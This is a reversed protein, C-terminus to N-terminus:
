WSDGGGEPPWVGFARRLMAVQGIHYSNHVATQWLVALLSSSRKAHDPHMPEVERALVEPASDALRALEALFDRFQVVAGRWEEESTPAAAAPWSEAAHAPYVPKEGRIRRLEYAMWFNMHFVLQWISHPFNEARRGAIDLSVDEVCGPTNAHAGEGYLLEILTREAM